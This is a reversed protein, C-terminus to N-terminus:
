FLSSSEEEGEQIAPLILHDPSSGYCYRCAEMPKKFVVYKRLQSRFRRDDEVKLYDTNRREFGQIHFSNTARSCYALEGRELTLCGRFVCSYFRKHVVRDSKERKVDIGGCQFWRSTENAFRYMVYKVGYKNCKNILQELKDHSRGYDSIRIYINNSRLKEMIEDSPVISGNTAVDCQHM